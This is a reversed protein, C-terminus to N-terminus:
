FPESWGTRVIIIRERTAPRSPVAKRGCHCQLYDWPTALASRLPSHLQTRGPCGKKGSSLLVEARQGSPRVGLRMVCVLKSDLPNGRTRCYGADERILKVGASRPRLHSSEACTWTRAM